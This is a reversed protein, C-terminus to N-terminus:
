PRPGATGGRVSEKDRCERDGDVPLMLVIGLDPLEALKRLLEMTKTVLAKSVMAEDFSARFRLCSASEAWFARFMTM